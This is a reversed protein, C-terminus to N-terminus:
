DLHLPHSPINFMNVYRFSTFNLMKCFSLIQALKLIRRSHNQKDNGVLFNRSAIQLQSYFCEIQSKWKFYKVYFPLILETVWGVSAENKSYVSLRQYFLFKLLNNWLNNLQKLFPNTRVCVLLQSLNRIKDVKVLLGSPWLPRDM